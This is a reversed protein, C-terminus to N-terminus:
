LSSTKGLAFVHGSCDLGLDFVCAGALEWALGRLDGKVGAPLDAAKVQPHLLEALASLAEAGVGQTQGSQPGSSLCTTEPLASLFVQCEAVGAVVLMTKLMSATRHSLATLFVAARQACLSGLFALTPADDSLVILDADTEQLPQQPDWKFLEAFCDDLIVLPASQCPLQWQICDILDM